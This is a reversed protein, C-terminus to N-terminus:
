ARAYYHMGDVRQRRIRKQGLLHNLCALMEATRLGM